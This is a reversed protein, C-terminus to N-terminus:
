IAVWTTTVVERQKVQIIWTLDEEISDEQGETLGKMWSYCWYNGTNKCLIILSMERQWRHDEGEEEDAIEFELTPKPLKPDRYQSYRWKHMVWALAEERETM